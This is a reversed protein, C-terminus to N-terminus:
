DPMQQLIVGITFLRKQRRLQKYLLKFILHFVNTIEGNNGVNIVTFGGQGIANNMQTAAQSITLHFRLHEIGHVNLTLAADGNLRLGGSQL